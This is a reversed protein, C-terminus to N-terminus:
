QYREQLFSRSVAKQGLSLIATNPSKLRYDTDSNDAKLSPDLIQPFHFIRNIKVGVAGISYARSLRHSLPNGTSVPPWHLHWLSALLPALPRGTSTRSPPWHLHWLAAWLQSGDWWDLWACYYRDGQRTM